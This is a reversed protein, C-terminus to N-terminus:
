VLFAYVKKRCRLLLKRSMKLSHFAHTSFSNFSCITEKHHSLAPSYMLSLTLDQALFTLIVKSVTTGYMGSCFPIDSHSFRARFSFAFVKLSSLFSGAHKQATAM